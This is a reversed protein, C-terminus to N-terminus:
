RNKAKSKLLKKAIWSRKGVAVNTPSLHHLTIGDEKLMTMADGYFSGDNKGLFITANNIWM